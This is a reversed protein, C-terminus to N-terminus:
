KLPYTGLSKVGDLITLAEEPRPVECLEIINGFPDRAYVVYGDEDSGVPEGLHQGGLEKLRKYEERCDDVYFALHRIGQENAGLQGPEPGNQKPGMYQFIELFCNHGKLIYGKSASGSLGIGRDFVPNPADWGEEGITEFGFMQEYFVKAKELDDVVLGPHAFGLIM